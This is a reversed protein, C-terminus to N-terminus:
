SGGSTIDCHFKGPNEACNVEGRQTAIYHSRILSSILELPPFHLQSYLKFVSFCLCMSKVILLPSFAKLNFYLNRSNFVLAKSQNFFVCVLELSTYNVYLPIWVNYPYLYIVKLLYKHWRLCVGILIYFSIKGPLEKM